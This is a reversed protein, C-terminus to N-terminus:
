TRPKMNRIREVLTITYPRHAAEQVAAGLQAIREPPRGDSIPEHLVADVARDLLDDPNFDKRDEM